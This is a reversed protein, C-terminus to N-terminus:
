KKINESRTMIPPPAEPKIPAIVAILLPSVDTTISSDDYQSYSTTVGARPTYVQNQIVKQAVLKAVRFAYISQQEEGALHAGTVYLNAADWVKNNSGFKVNYAIAEVIDVIDDFCNVNGGPVTHTPYEILMDKVAVDAIYNKNLLLLDHADAFRDGVPNIGQNIITKLGDM